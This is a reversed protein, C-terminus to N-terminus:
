RTRSYKFYKQFKTLDLTASMIVLKLDNARKNRDGVIGKGAILEAKSVEEIKQNSNKAIGLGIIRSM